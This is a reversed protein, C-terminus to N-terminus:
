AGATAAADTGGRNAPSTTASPRERRSQPARGPRGSRRDTPAKRRPSAAEPQQHLRLAYRALGVRRLVPASRITARGGAGGASYGAASLAARLEATSCEGAAAAGVAALLVKDTGTLETAHVHGAGVLDGAVEYDPQSELYARLLGPTPLKRATVKTLMAALGDHLDDITQPGVALM